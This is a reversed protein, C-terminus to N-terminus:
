DLAGLMAELVGVADDNSAPQRVKETLDQGGQDARLVRFGESLGPADADCSDLPGGLEHLLVVVPGREGALQYHISVGNAEKWPLTRGGPRGRESLWDRTGAGAALDSDVGPSRRTDPM